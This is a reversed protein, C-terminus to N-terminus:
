VNVQIRVGIFQWGQLFVTLILGMSPLATSLGLLVSAFCFLTWLPPNRM